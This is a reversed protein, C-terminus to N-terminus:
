FHVDETAMSLVVIKDKIAAGMMAAFNDLNIAGTLIAFSFHPFNQINKSFHFLSFMSVGKTELQQLPTAESFTFLAAFLVLILAVSIKAM